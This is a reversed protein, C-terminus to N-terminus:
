LRRRDTDDCIRKGYEFLTKRATRWVLKRALCKREATRRTVGSRGRRAVQIFESRGDSTYGYDAITTQGNNKKSSLYDGTAAHRVFVFRPVPFAERAAVAVSRQGSL